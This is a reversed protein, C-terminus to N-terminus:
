LSIVDIPPPPVYGSVHLKHTIASHTCKYCTSEEMLNLTYKLVDWWLSSCGCPIKPTGLPLICIIWIRHAHLGCLPDEELGIITIPTVSFMKCLMALVHWLVMMCTYYEKLRLECFLNEVYMDIHFNKRTKMHPVREWLKDVGKLYVWNKLFYFSFFIFIHWMNIYFIVLIKWNTFIAM